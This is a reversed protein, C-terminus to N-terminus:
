FRDRIGSNKFVKSTLSDQIYLVRKYMNMCGDGKVGREDSPKRKFGIKYGNKEAFEEFFSM